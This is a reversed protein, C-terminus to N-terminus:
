STGRNWSANSTWARTSLVVLGLGVLWFALPLVLNGGSAPDIAADYPDGPNVYVTVVNGGAASAARADRQTTFM